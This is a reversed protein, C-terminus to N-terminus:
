RKVKALKREEDQLYRHLSRVLEAETYLVSQLDANSTFIGDNEAAAAAGDVDAASVATAVAAACLCFAISSSPWMMLSPSESPHRIVGDSEEEIKGAGRRLARGGSVSIPLFATPM